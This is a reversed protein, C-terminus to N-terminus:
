HLISIYKKVNRIVVENGDVDNLLWMLPSVLDELAYMEEDSISKEAVSVLDKTLVELYFNDVIEGSDLITTIKEALYNFVVSKDCMTESNQSAVWDFDNHAAIHSIYRTLAVHGNSRVIEWLARIVNIPQDLSFKYRELVDIIIDGVTQNMEPDEIESPVAALVLQAGAALFAPNEEKLARKIYRKVVPIAELVTAAHTKSGNRTLYQYLIECARRSLLCDKACQNSRLFTLLETFLGNISEILEIENKTSYVYVFCYFELISLILNYRDPMTSKKLGKLNKLYQLLFPVMERVPTVVKDAMNHKNLSSGLAIVVTDVCSYSQSNAFAFDKIINFLDHKDLLSKYNDSFPVFEEKSYYFIFLICVEATNMENVKKHGLCHPPFREAMHRGNSRIGPSEIVALLTPLMESREEMSITLYSGMLKEVFMSFFLHVHDFEMVKEKLKILNLVFNSKIVTLFDEIKVDPFLTAYIVMNISEVVKRRENSELVDRAKKLDSCVTNIYEFIFPLLPKVAPVLKRKISPIEQESSGITALTEVLRHLLAERGRKERNNSHANYHLSVIVSLLKMVGQEVVIIIEEDCSNDVLLHVLNVTDKVLTEDHWHTKVGQLIKPLASFVNNSVPSHIKEFHLFKTLIETLSQVVIKLSSVNNEYFPLLGSLALTVVSRTGGHDIILRILPSMDLYGLYSFMKQFLESEITVFLALDARSQLDFQLEGYGWNNCIRIYEVLKKCLERTEPKPGCMCDCCVTAKFQELNIRTNFMSPHVM